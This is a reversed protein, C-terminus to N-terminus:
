LVEDLFDLFAAWSQEDARAQYSDSDFVSFAHPAGSYVQLEYTLGAAELEEVLTAVESMPIATDAGGHAILLPPADEPWAQGEPTALGGHFSVYGHIGEASGSRALELAAAGGFCYGIVVSAEPLGQDRAAALGALLLDRMRARDQYLAGTAARRAELTEPRHGAGFLDVAFAAYGQEALMEARRREYGNLGDWDHIILVGGRAEGEPLALYGEFAEENVAYSLPDGAQALPALAALALALGASPIRHMM